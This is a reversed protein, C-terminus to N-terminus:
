PRSGDDSVGGLGTRYLLFLRAFNNPLLSCRLRVGTVVRPLRNLVNSLFSPVIKYLFIERRSVSPSQLSNLYIFTLHLGIDSRIRSFATFSQNTQKEGKEKERYNNSTKHSGIHRIFNYINRSHQLRQLNWGYSQTM